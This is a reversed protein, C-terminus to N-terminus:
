IIKEYLETLKYYKEPKLDSPRSNLDLNKIISENQFNKFINQITKNIKKRKKSFFINTITELNELKKINNLFNKKPKFILITSNIKPKPFFSNPSVNFIKKINLKYNALISLRGYEKTDYNALIRNALEKQFMFIMVSFKPPWKDFKIM